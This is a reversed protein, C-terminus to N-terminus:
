WNIKRRLKETFGLIIFSLVFVLLFCNLLAFLFDTFSYVMDLSDLIILLFSFILSVFFSASLFNYKDKKIIAYIFYIISLPFVIIFMPTITEFIFLFDINQFFYIYWLEESKEAFIFDLISLVLFSWLFLFLPFSNLSLFYVVKEKTIKM